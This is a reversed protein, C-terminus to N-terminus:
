RSSVYGWKHLDRMLVAVFNRGAPSGLHRTGSYLLGHALAYDLARKAEDPRGLLYQDAAYVAVFTRLDEGAPVRKRTLFEKGVQAANHRIVEPFRRTVDVLRGARYQSIRPPAFSFVYASFTYVFREDFASIEPRGDHDLDVLKYGYNGFFLVKPRYAAAATDFRLALLVSCCHAGQTYLDLLVEPEGGDLDRVGVSVPRFTDCDRCGLRRLPSDLAARGRRVIKLRLDQYFANREVFSVSATVAGGRRWMVQAVARSVDLTFCHLTAPAGDNEIRLTWRGKADEDYLSRLDGEARYPGDTFPSTGAAIPNSTTDSDFEIPIGGCGKEGSGFDAGAGRHAVLPVATGKPSVLSISLASEEPTTIRFSVRLFSVPGADPVTLPEEVHSGIRVNINETSYEKTASEAPAAGLALVALGLLALRRV